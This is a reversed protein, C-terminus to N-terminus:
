IYEYVDVLKMEDTANILDRLIQLHGAGYLIFIKKVSDALRQINSFIKLNREYWKLIAISGNYHGDSNEANVMMYINHNRRSWEDTNSIRYQGIISYEQGREYDLLSQVAAKVRESPTGVFLTGDMLIDEDIGNIRELGLEKGLRYGVQVCECNYLIPKTHGFSLINGLTNNKMKVIDDFDSLKLKAYSEDISLQQTASMEVAIADPSFRSINKVLLRLEDQAEKAFFDINSENFHFTGLLFVETMTRSLGKM